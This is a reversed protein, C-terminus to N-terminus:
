AGVELAPSRSTGNIPQFEVVWVFPNAAWSGFGNISDWLTMFAWAPQSGDYTPDEAEQETIGEAIADEDSIECLREVRVCTIELTIRSAWRPMHISPRWRLGSNSDDWGPDTARYVPYSDVPHCDPMMAWTERVWLRDGPQGYPCMSLAAIRDQENEPDLCRWWKPNIIRRTQTKRGELIARVMPGSFLIPRERVKTETSM